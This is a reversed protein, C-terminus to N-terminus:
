RGRARSQPQFNFKNRSKKKLPISLTLGDSRSFFEKIILPAQERNKLDAADKRPFAIENEDDGDDSSSTEGGAAGRTGGWLISLDNEVLASDM